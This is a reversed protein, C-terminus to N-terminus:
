GAPSSDCLPRLSLSSGELKLPASIRDSSDLTGTRTQAWVRFTHFTSRSVNRVPMATSQLANLIKRMDGRGVRLCARFGGETVDLKEAAIVDRVRGEVQHHQLPAFRFKTCRSQLAPIIKSM